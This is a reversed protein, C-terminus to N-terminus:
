RETIRWRSLVLDNRWRVDDPFILVTIRNLIIGHVSRQILVLGAFIRLSDLMDPEKHYTASWYAPIPWPGM